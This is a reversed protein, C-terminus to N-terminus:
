TYHVYIQPESFLDDGSIAKSRNYGGGFTICSSEFHRAISTTIASYSNVTM